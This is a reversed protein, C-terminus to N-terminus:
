NKEDISILSLEEFTKSKSDFEELMDNFLILDNNYKGDYWVNMTKNYEEISNLILTFNNNLNDTDIIKGKTLQSKMNDILDEFSEIIDEDISTSTLNEM